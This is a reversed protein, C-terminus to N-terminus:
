RAANDNSNKDKKKRIKMVKTRESFRAFMAHSKKSSHKKLSKGYRRKKRKKV